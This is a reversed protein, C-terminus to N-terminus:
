GAPPPPECCLTVPTGQKDTVATFHPYPAFCDQKGPKLICPTFGPEFPVCVFGKESCTPEPVASCALVQQPEAGRSAMVETGKLGAYPADPPCHLFADQPAFAVEAMDWSADVYGVCRGECLPHIPTQTGTSAPPSPCNEEDCNLPHFQCGTSLGLTVAIWRLLTTRKKQM